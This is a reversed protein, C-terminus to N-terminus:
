AKGGRARIEAAWDHFISKGAPIDGDGYLEHYAACREYAEAILERIAPELKDAVKNRAFTGGVMLESFANVITDALGKVTDALDRTV